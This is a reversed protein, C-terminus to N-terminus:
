APAYESVVGDKVTGVIAKASCPGSLGPLQKGDCTFTLGAGLPLPVDKASKIAAIISEPTAEGEVEAAARIFGMMSQYGASANGSPNVEPAY